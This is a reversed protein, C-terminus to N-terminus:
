DPISIYHIPGDILFNQTVWHGAIIAQLDSHFASPAVIERLCLALPLKDFKRWEREMYFNEPHNEPLDVNWFKLFAQFDREILKTAEDVADQADAAPSGLVRRRFSLSYPFFRDLGELVTRIQGAFRTGWNEAFEESCPVYIVPRMGWRAVVSKSVGVGFRGYRKSHFPLDARHFEGFCVVSQEAPEGNILTRNPDHLMRMGGRAGDVECTRVEMSRLIESLIEFNEQDAGPRRRGVFHYLTDSVFSQM